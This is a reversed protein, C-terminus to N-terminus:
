LTDDSPHTMFKEEPEDRQDSDDKRTTTELRRKRKKVRDKTQRLSLALKAKDMRLYQLAFRIIELQMLNRKGHQGTSNFDDLLEETMISELWRIDRPQLVRRLQITLYERGDSDKMMEEVEELDEISTIPFTRDDNSFNNTLADVTTQLDYLQKTNNTIMEKIDKLERLVGMLLETTESGENDSNM